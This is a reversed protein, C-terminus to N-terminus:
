LQGSKGSLRNHLAKTERAHCTLCLTRYNGLGCDKGGEAVAIRHDAQWLSIIRKRRGFGFAEIFALPTQQDEGLQLSYDVLRRIIRDLMGCDRRCHTCIGQDRDFVARRAYAPSIRILFEHRCASSCFNSSSKPVPALCRRCQARGDPGSTGPDYAPHDANVPIRRM